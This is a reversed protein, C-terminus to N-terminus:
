MSGSVQLVYSLGPCALGGGADGHDLLEELKLLNRSSFFINVDTKISNMVQASDGAAGATLGHSKLLTTVSRQVYTCFLLRSFKRHM